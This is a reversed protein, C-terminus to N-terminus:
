EDSDIADLLVLMNFIDINMYQDVIFIYVFISLAIHGDNANLTVRM